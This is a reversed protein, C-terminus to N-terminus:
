LYLCMVWIHLPPKSGCMRLMPLLYLDTTLKVGWDVKDEPLVGETDASNSDSHAESVSPKPILFM